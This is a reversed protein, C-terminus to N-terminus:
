YNSESKDKRMIGSEILVAKVVEQLSCDPNDKFYIYKRKYVEKHFNQENYKRIKEARSIAKKVDDLTITQLVSQFNKEQKYKKLTEFNKHFARNLQELYQAKTNLPVRYDIKHLLIWLEFTLNSYGLQCDVQKIQSARHIDNLMNLFTQRDNPQNGEYDVVQVIQTKGMLPLHKVWSVMRINRKITFSVNAIRDPEQNILNQLWRLYREECEGEVLFYYQNYTKRDM